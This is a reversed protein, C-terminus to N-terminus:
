LNRIRYELAAKSVFFRKALEEIRSDDEVDIPSSILLKDLMERPMLLAAAFRNAEVELREIGTASSKDRRLVAEAFQKDVHVASTIYEPHLQLHGIEHAISFRQRNPHHLSNIGIIPVGNKIFIFGSLEEDLPSFRLRAGLCKAIRDVLVPIERLGFRALLKSTRDELSEKRLYAM